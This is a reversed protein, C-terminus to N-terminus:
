LCIGPLSSETLAFDFTFKMGYASIFLPFTLHISLYECEAAQHNNCLSLLFVVIIIYSVHLIFQAHVTM